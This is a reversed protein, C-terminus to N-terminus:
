WITDLSKQTRIKADRTVLPCRMQIATAILIRDIPDGHVEDGREGARLAIEVTVPVVEIRERALAEATWTWADKPLSIRGRRALTAIEWCTVTGILIVGAGLIAESAPVSLNRPALLSWLWAHTDLLIM